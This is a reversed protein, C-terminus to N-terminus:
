RRKGSRGRHLVAGGNGRLPRRTGADGSASWPPQHRIIPRGRITDPVDTVPGLHPSGDRRVHVRHSRKKGRVGFPQGGLGYCRTGYLGCPGVNSVPYFDDDDEVVVVQPQDRRPRRELEQQQLQRNLRALAAIEEYDPWGAPEGEIMLTGVISVSLQDPLDDNTYVSPAADGEEATVPLAVLAAGLVLALKLTRRM